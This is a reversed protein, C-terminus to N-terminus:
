HSGTCRNPDWNPIRGCARNFNSLGGLMPSRVELAWNVAEVADGNDRETRAMMYLYGVYSRSRSWNAACSSSWFLDTRGWAEYVTDVIGSYLDCGQNNPWKNDCTYNFCGASYSLSASTQAGSRADTGGKALGTVPMMAVLALAIATAILAIAPSGRKM